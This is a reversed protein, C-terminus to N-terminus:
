TKLAKQDEKIAEAQCFFRWEEGVYTTYGYQGSEKGAVMVCTHSFCKAWM